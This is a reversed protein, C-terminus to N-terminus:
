SEMYYIIDSLAETAEALSSNNDAKIADQITEILDVMDERDEDNVDDMLRQAKEILAQAQVTEKHSSSQLPKDDQEVEQVASFFADIKDRAQDVM